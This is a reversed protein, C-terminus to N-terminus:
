KSKGIQQHYFFREVNFICTRLYLQLTDIAVFIIRRDTFTSFGAHTIVVSVIALARILDFEAFRNSVKQM